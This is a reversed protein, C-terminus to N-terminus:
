PTGAGGLSSPPTPSEEPPPLHEHYVFEPQRRQRGPRQRHHGGPREAQGHLVRARGEPGEGYLRDVDAPRRLRRDRRQGAAEAPRLRDLRHRGRDAPLRLVLRRRLRQHHRDQRRPRRAKASRRRPRRHRAPRRRADHQGHSLRQARRHRAPQRRGGHGAQVRGPRHGREDLIQKVLYPEIKYGGNAFVSYAALQQWPTVSGAGLALTLYPPHKDADFGFRTAYDQAYRTGISRLLRISVMNKSKALATRVRCRGKTSATTTRRSGPRALRNRRGLHFDTRGGGRLGPTYGKELAASYIFPKFSSGPQRWAQTVHNFKNRSFDFGGVLARIAGDVPSAAVLAAEVDPVQAIQWNGKDDKMVRIVAGRRLRKNAPAKDDIMRSAFKLGDGSLSVVEGGRLYARVQKADAALVIAPRLDDTDEFDQLLDELEDDQDTTVTALDVYAEAGRYGHRRDYDLVGRRLAAYAAEQDARPITTTIRLGKSYADEHFREFAIQRAMEAVYEAHVGFDNVDRKIRLAEKQAVNLEADDLFSLERM